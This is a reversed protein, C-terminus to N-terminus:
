RGNDVLWPIRSNKTRNTFGPNTNRPRISLCVSKTHLFGNKVFSSCPILCSYCLSKGSGTPLSGKWGCVSEAGEKQDDTACDYGMKQVASLLVIGLESNSITVGIRCQFCVKKFLWIMERISQKMSVGYM